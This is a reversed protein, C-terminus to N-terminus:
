RGSLPDFREMLGLARDNPETTVPEELAACATVMVLVPVAAAGTVATAVLPLKLWVLLQPLLMAAPPDQATETMKEGVTAPAAVPLRVTVADPMVLVMGSDPVPTAGPGIRPAFGDLRAKGVM